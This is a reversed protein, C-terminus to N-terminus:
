GLLRDALAATEPAFRPAHRRALDTEAHSGIWATLAMRRLLIMPGIMAVDELDLSRLTEYGTRWADILGDLDPRTEIFSLSAALDYLYWCFGSDDFDIVTVRDDDVLLNALRMDAHILGFNRPTRGYRALRQRLELDVQALRDRVEGVVGPARRWDGWLGNADLVAEASWIQREFWVPRNWCEAHTHALAAYRGLTGFLPRLDADEAPEVGTEHVFLVATRDTGIRQLLQEDAGPLPSPVPIQGRLSDVFALESLIATSSQYGPRHLRLIFRGAPADVRYTHNESVNILTARGGKTEAWLGLDSELDAANL